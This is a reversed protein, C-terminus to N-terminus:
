PTAPAPAREDASAIKFSSRSPAREDTRRPLPAADSLLPYPQGCSPCHAAADAEALHSCAICLRVGSDLLSQYQRRVLPLRLIEDVVDPVAKRSAHELLAGGVLKAAVWGILPPALLVLLGKGSTLSAPTLVSMLLIGSTTWAAVFVLLACLAAVL